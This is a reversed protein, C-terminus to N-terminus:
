RDVEGFVPDLTALTAVVDAVLTGNALRPLTSLNSFCPSRFKIRHPFPTGNSVIFVGLDGRPSEIHAYAEGPPPALLRPVGEAQVPGEPIQELAQEIIKISERMEDMRVKCRDWNDGVEGVCVNFDFRNYVLYPDDKRVDYPVGSGRLVPGSAGYTIAEEPPFIAVGKMRKKFIYNEILLNEYEDLNKRFGAVFDKIMEAFNEPLDRSVGGIRMYNYTMRAGCVHEFITLIRERDEFCYFFPTLAGVDLGGTGLWVLHSAIRNLEAVIVRIYQAREPVEIQALKEVALVYALNNTMSSVYDLRDTLPIIQAYTRAEAIKEIGRHLYGIHPTTSTIKEGDVNLVVRLVGHTSPHQPGMNLILEQTEIM